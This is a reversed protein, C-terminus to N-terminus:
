QEAHAFPHREELHEPGVGGYPAGAAFAAAHRDREQVGFNAWGVAGAQEPQENDTTRREHFYGRIGSLKRSECISDAVIRSYQKM